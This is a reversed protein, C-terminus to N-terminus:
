PRLVKAGPYRRRVAAWSPTQVGSASTTHMVRGQLWVGVHSPCFLVVDGNQPQSAEEWGPGCLVRAAAEHVTRPAFDAPDIPLPTALGLAERAAQVLTWCDYTAPPDSPWAYPTGIAPLGTM